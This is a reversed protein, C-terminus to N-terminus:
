YPRVYEEKTGLLWKNATHKKCVFPSNTYNQHPKRPLNLLNNQPTRVIFFPTYTTIILSNSALTLFIVYM